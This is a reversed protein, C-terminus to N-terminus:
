LQVIISLKELDRTDQLDYLPDGEGKLSPSLWGFLSDGLVKWGM